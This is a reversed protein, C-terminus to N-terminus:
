KAELEKQENDDIKGAGEKRDQVQLTHEAGRGCRRADKDGIAKDKGKHEVDQDKQHLEQGFAEAAGAHHSSESKQKRDAKAEEHLEAEEGAGRELSAEM